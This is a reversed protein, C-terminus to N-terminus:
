IIMEDLKYPVMQDKKLQQSEKLATESPVFVMNQPFRDGYGRLSAEFVYVLDLVKVSPLETNPFQRKWELVLMPRQFYMPTPKEGSEDAAGAGAGPGAYELGDVYFLPVHGQERFSQKDIRLGDERDDASPILELISDLTQVKQSKRSRKRLALRMAVDAPIYTITADKWVEAYGGEEAARQADAKVAQAGELSTFAYGKAMRGEKQVAMYPVGQSNVICFTPVSRLRPLLKNITMTVGSARGAVTPEATSTATTEAALSSEPLLCAATAVGLSSMLVVDRRTMPTPLFGSSSALKAPKEEQVDVDVHDAKSL